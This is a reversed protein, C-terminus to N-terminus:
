GVTLENEVSRVGQLDRVIQTARDRAVPDPAQGRLTVEADQSSVDIQLPALAADRQLAQRAETAIRADLAVGSDAPGNGAGGRIATAGHHGDDVAQRSAGEMGQRNIEVSPREPQPMETSEDRNGCAGLALLAALAPVALLTRKRNDM